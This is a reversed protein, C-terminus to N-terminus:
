LQVTMMLSHWVENGDAADHVCVSIVRHVYPDDCNEPAVVNDALRLDSASLAVVNKLDKKVAKDTMASYMAAEQESYRELMDHSSNWRTIVDQNLKHVPLKEQKTKLMRAVTTSRHFFTVLKRTKEIVHSIQQVTMKIVHGFCGIQLM